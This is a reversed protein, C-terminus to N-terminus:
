FDVIVSQLGTVSEHVLRIELADSDKGNSPSIVSFAKRFLPKKILSGFSKKCHVGVRTLLGLINMIAYYGDAITKVGLYEFVQQPEYALWNNNSVSPMIQLAQTRAIIELLEALVEQNKNMSIVFGDKDVFTDDSESPREPLREVVKSIRKLYMASEPSIPLPFCPKFSVRDGCPGLLFPRKKIIVKSDPYIKHSWDVVIDKEDAGVVNAVWSNLFAEDSSHIRYIYLPIPVFKKETKKAVRGKKNVVNTEQLCVVMFAKECNGYGGYRAVQDVAKMTKPILAAGKGKGNKLNPHRSLNQDYFAGDVYAHKFTLLMDKRYSIKRVKEGFETRVFEKKGDDYHGFLTVLRREVNLSTKPGQEPNLSMEDFALRSVENVDRYLKKIEVGAVINLYADVAHHTDDIERIKPIELKQRLRSPYQAKCFIVKVNPYKINLLDRLLINSRNVVNIQENLFGRIESETLEQTRILRNYKEESIGKAKKLTEWMRIANERKCGMRNWPIPYVNGKDKNHKRLTLIKNDLSDNPQLSQPVIHDVDYDENLRNYDIPEGSYMDKGNQKFYLYLKEGRLTDNDIKEFLPKIERANFQAEERDSKKLSAFFANIEAKRKAAKQQWETKRDKSNNERAVEICVYEPEKKAFRIVEDVIRLAQIASRRPGAPADDLKEQIMEDPDIGEFYHNNLSNIREQYHFKPDNLVSEMNQGTSEMTDLLPQGIEGDEDFGQLLLLKKSLRGWGKPHFGELKKLQEDTLEPYLENVYDRGDKPSDKFCTLLEIIKEAKSYDPNERDLVNWSFPPNLFLAHSPCNFENDGEAYGSVSEFKQGQGNLLKTLAEITTKSRTLVGCPGELITKRVESDPKMGDFVLNNIKNVAKFREYLLSQEPLVREFTLKSCKKTMKCIFAEKTKRADVINEYNLISISDNEHGELRVVNSRDKTADPNHKLPGYYYPVRSLFIRMITEKTGALEPYFRELNSTIIELEKKHLQHPLAGSTKNTPMQMLYDLCNRRALFDDHFARTEASCLDFNIDKFFSELCENFAEVDGRNKTKCLENGKIYAHYNYVKGNKDEKFIKRVLSDDGSWDFTKDIDACAKKLEKKDKKHREYVDVFAESIYKSDAMLDYVTRYDYIAKAYDVFPAADGLADKWSAENEEFNKDFKMGKELGDIKATTGGSCLKCFLPVYVKDANDFLAILEESREKVGKAKDLLVGKFEKYRSAPLFPVPEEGECEDFDDTSGCVERLLGNVQEFVSNDFRSPDFDGAHLFNGRHKLIHAIALYVFRLDSYAREDGKVLAQRLHYISPFRKHFNIEEAPTPFITKQNRLLPNRRADDGIFPSEDLRKFFLPDTKEIETKFITNLLKIREKRRAKRRLECRKLRRAKVLSKGKADVGGADFIRAGWATKGKIRCLNYEEDAAAWGVSNSGVDLGIYYKKDM